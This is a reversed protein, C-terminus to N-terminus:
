MLDYTSKENYGMFQKVHKILIHYPPTESFTTQCNQNEAMNICLVGPKILVM